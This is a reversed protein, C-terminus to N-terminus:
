RWVTATELGDMTLLVRQRVKDVCYPLCLGLRVTHKAIHRYEMYQPLLCALKFAQDITAM